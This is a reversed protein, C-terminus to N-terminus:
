HVAGWIEYKYKYIYTPGYDSRSKYPSGTLILFISFVNTGDLEDLVKTTVRRSNLLHHKEDFRCDTPQDELM